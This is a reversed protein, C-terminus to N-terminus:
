RADSEPASYIVTNNGATVVIHGDLLTVLRPPLELAVQRSGILIGTEAELVHLDYVNQGGEAQHQATELTVFLSEGPAPPTLSGEDPEEGQVSDLGVLKGAADFVCLGRDTAFATLKREPGIPYAEIRGSGVLHEYSELPRRGIEGAVVGALWLSRHEDLIFMRDGFIWADLSGFAPGGAISWSLKARVIDYADIQPEMGTVLTTGAAHGALRVWRVKGALSDLNQMLQGSRADYVAVVPKFGAVGDPAPRAGGIAVAGGGVDIDHVQAVPTTERWLMLGTALDFVALRGSREAIALVQEDMAVVVDTLRV